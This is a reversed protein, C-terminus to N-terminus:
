SNKQRAHKTVFYSHTSHLDLWLYFAVNESRQKWCCVAGLSWSGDWTNKGFRQDQECFFNPKNISWMYTKCGSALKISALLALFSCLKHSSKVCHSTHVLSVVYSGVGGGGVGKGVHGWSGWEAPGTSSIDSWGSSLCAGKFHSM